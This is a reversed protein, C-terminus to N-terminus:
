CAGLRLGHDDDGSVTRRLGIVRLCIWIRILLLVNNVVLGAVVGRVAIGGGVVILRVVVTIISWISVSIIPGMSISAPLRSNSTMTRYCVFM